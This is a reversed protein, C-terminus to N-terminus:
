ISRVAVGEFQVICVTTGENNWAVIKGISSHATSSTKTFTDDDIAYVADGIDAVGTVGTVALKVRGRTRTRVRKAGAGGAANDCIRDAFGLFPDGGVLPRAVGSANDGVAAGEYIIDTAVM